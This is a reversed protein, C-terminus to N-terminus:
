TEKVITTRVSCIKQHEVLKAPVPLGSAWFVKKWVGLWHNPILSLTEFLWKLLSNEHQLCTGARGTFPQLAWAVHCLVGSAQFFRKPKNAKCAVSFVDMKVPNSLGNCLGINGRTLWVFWKFFLFFLGWTQETQSAHCPVSFFVASLIYGLGLWTFLAILKLIYQILHRQILKQFATRLWVFGMWFKTQVHPWLGFIWM